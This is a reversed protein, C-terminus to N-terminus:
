CGAGGQGEGERGQVGAWGGGARVQGKAPVPTSTTLRKGALPQPGRLRSLIQPPRSPCLLSAPCPAPLCLSSTLPCTGSTMPLGATRADRGGPWGWRSDAGWSDGLSMPPLLEHPRRRRGRGLEKRPHPGYPTGLSGDSGLLVEEAKRPRSGGGVGAWGWGDGTLSGAPQSALSPRPTRSTPLFLGQGGTGQAQPPAQVPSHQSGVRSWPNGSRPAEPETNGFEPALAKWQAAADLRAPEPRRAQTSQWAGPRCGAGPGVM